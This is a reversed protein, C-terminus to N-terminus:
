QLPHYFSLVDSSQVAGGDVTAMSLTRQWGQGRNVRRREDVLIANPESAVTQGLGPSPLTVTPSVNHFIENKGLM